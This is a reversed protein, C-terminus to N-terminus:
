VYGSSGSFFTRLSLSCIVTLWIVVFIDRFISLYLSKTGFTLTRICPSVCRWGRYFSWFTDPCFQYLESADSLVSFFYVKLHNVTVFTGFKLLTEANAKGFYIRKVWFIRLWLAFNYKGVVTFGRSLEFKIVLYTGSVLDFLALIWVFRM